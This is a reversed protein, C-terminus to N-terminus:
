TVLQTTFFTQLFLCIKWPGSCTKEVIVIKMTCDRHKQDGITRFLRVSNVQVYDIKLNYQSVM